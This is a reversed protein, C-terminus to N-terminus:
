KCFGGFHRLNCPIQPLSIYVCIVRNCDQPLIKALQVTNSDFLSLMSATTELM